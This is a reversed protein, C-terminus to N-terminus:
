KARRLTNARAPEKVSTTDPANLVEALLERDIERTSRRAVELTSPDLEVTATRRAVEALLGTTLPDVLTSTRSTTPLADPQSGRAVRVAQAVSDDWDALPDDEEAPPEPEAVISKKTLEVLDGYQMPQTRRSNRDAMVLSCYRPGRQM